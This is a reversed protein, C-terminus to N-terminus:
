KLYIYTGAGFRRTVLLVGTGEFHVDDKFEAPSSTSGWTGCKASLKTVDDFFLVGTRVVTSSGIVNVKGGDTIRWAARPHMGSGSNFAVKAGDGCVLVNTCGAWTCDAALEFVGGTVTLFGTSLINTAFTYSADGGKVISVAGKVHVDSNTGPETQRFSFVAPSDSNIVSKGMETTTGIEGNLRINGVAVDHGNLQLKPTNSLVPEMTLYPLPEAFVDDAEILCSCSDQLTLAKVVNGSERWHVAIWIPQFYNFSSRNIYWNGSAANMHVNGAPNVVGADTYFKGGGGYIIVHNNNNIYLPRSLHVTGWVEVSNRDHPNTGPFVAMTIPKEIAINQGDVGLMVGAAHGYDSYAVIGDPLGSPNMKGFAYLPATAKFKGALAVWRGTYDLAQDLLLTGAGNKLIRTYVNANVAALDAASIADAISTTEGSPITIVLTNEFLACGGEAPDFVSSRTAYSPASEGGFCGNGLSEGGVMLAGSFSLTTGNAISIVDTANADSVSFTADGTGMADNARTVLRGGSLTVGTCGLFTVGEALELTGGAVELSGANSLTRTCVLTGPGSKKLSLQGSFTFTQNTAVPVAVGFDLTAPGTSSTVSYGYINTTAFDFATDHGKLDFTGLSTTAGERTVLRVKPRNAFAGDTEIQVYGGLNHTISGVNNGAVAFHVVEYTLEMSSVNVPVDYIWWHQSAGANALGGDMADVGGYTYFTTGTPFFLSLKGSPCSLRGRLTCSKRNGALRIAATQTNPTATAYVAIPNSVVANTADFQIYAGSSHYVVIQSLATTGKGFAYENTSVYTGGQGLMWGGTYDLAKDLKLTGTGTKIVCEYENNNLKALDAASIANAISVTGSAVNIRLLGDGSASAQMVGTSADDFLDLKTEAASADSGYTGPVVAEGELFFRAATITVGSPLLIQDAVDKDVVDFDVVTSLADGDALELRGGSLTVRSVKQVSASTGLALTGEEVTVEGDMDDSRNITLTGVGKKVLSMKGVLSCDFVADVANSVTIVAPTSTSVLTGNGVNGSTINAAVSVAASHGNVDLYESSSFNSLRMVAGSLAGDAYLIIKGGGRGYFERIANGAAYLRLYAWNHNIKGLNIPEDYVYWNGNAGTTIITANPADMGGYMTLRAGSGQFYFGCTCTEEIIVRGDLRLWAKAGSGNGNFMLTKNVNASGAGTIRIPASITANICGTDVFIQSNASAPLRITAAAGTGKGMPWTPDAENAKGLKVTAKDLNWAGTYELDETLTVTIMSSGTLVVNTITGDDTKLATYYAANAGSLISSLVGSETITLVRDNLSVAAAATFGASVVAAVFAARASAFRTKEKM